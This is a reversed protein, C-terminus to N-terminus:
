VIDARSPMYLVGRYVLPTGEQAGGTGIPKTWVQKLQAVNRKNIDELPSYGWGNLTRRWSLWDGADPNQPMNDTFPVFDDTTEAGASLATAFALGLAVLGTRIM